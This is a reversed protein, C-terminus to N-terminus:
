QEVLDPARRMWGATDIEKFNFDSYLSEAGTTKLLMIISKLQSHSLISEMLFHGLGRKRYEELIYVDLLFGFTTYDTIVRSFGIQKEDKYLGFCLSFKISEIVAEKTRGSAWYSSTLFNHVATIDLRSVDDSVVYLDKTWEM